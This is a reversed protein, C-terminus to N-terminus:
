RASIEAFLHEVNPRMQKHIWIKTQGLEDTIWFGHSEVKLIRCSDRDLQRRSFFHRSEIRTPSVLVTQKMMAWLGLGIPLLLFSAFRIVPPLVFPRGNALGIIFEASSILGVIAALLFAARVRPNFGLVLVANPDSRNLPMARIPVGWDDSFDAPDGLFEFVARLNTVIRQKDEITVPVGDHPPKWSVISSTFIAISGTALGESDVFMM